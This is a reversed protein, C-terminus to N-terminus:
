IKLCWIICRFAEQPYQKTKNKKKNQNEKVTLVYSFPQYFLVISWHDLIDNFM